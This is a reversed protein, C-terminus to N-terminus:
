LDTLREELALVHDREHEGADDQEAVRRGSDVGDDGVVGVDKQLASEGIEMGVPAVDEEGDDVEQQGDSAHDKDIFFSASEQEDEAGRANDNRHDYDAHEEMERFALIHIAAGRNLGHDAGALPQVEAERRGGGFLKQGGRAIGGDLRAISREGDDIGISSEGSGGGKDTGVVGGGRRDVNGAVGANGGVFNLGEELVGEGADLGRLVSREGDLPGEDSG